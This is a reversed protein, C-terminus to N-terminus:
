IEIRRYFLPYLPVVPIIPKHKSWDNKKIFNVTGSLRAGITTQLLIKQGYSKTFVSLYKQPQIWLLKWAYNAASDKYNFIEQESFRSYKYDLKIM